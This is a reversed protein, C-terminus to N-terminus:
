RKPRERWSGSPIERWRRHETSVYVYAEVRAGGELEIESRRYLDPHRELRDLTALTQPDVQYLEGVIGTRGGAVIAAYSGLDFMTFRATTKADGLYEARALVRHNREGRLLTGYVFLTTM